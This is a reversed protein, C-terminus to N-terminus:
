FTGWDYGASKCIEYALSQFEHGHPKADPRVMELYAHIMEHAMTVEVEKATNHHQESIAIVYGRTLRRFYGKKNKDHTIRFVMERRPPMIWRRFVPRKSLADYMKALEEPDLKM